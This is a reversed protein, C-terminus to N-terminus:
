IRLINRNSHERFLKAQTQQKATQSHPNMLDNDVEDQEENISSGVYQSYKELAKVPKKQGDDFSKM